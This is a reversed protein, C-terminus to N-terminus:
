DFFKGIIDGVADSIVEKSNEKTFGIVIKSQQKTINQLVTTHAIMKGVESIFEDKRTKNKSRIRKLTFTFKRGDSVKIKVQTNLMFVSFYICFFVLMILFILFYDPALQMLWIIFATFAVMATLSLISFKNKVEFSQMENYPIGRIRNKYKLKERIVLMDQCVFFNMDVGKIIKPIMFILDLIDPRGSPTFFTKFVYEKEQFANDSHGNNNEQEPLPNIRHGCEDCFVWDDKLEKGCKICFM